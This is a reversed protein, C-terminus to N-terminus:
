GDRLEELVANQYHLSEVIFRDPQPLDAPDDPLSPPVLDTTGTDGDSGDSGGNEREEAPEFCGAVAAAGSMAAGALLLDRRPIRGDSMAVVAPSGSANSAPTM